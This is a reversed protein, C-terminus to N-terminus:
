HHGFIFFRMRSINLSHPGNVLFVHCSLSLQTYDIIQYLLFFIGTDPNITFGPSAGDRQMIGYKVEGNVGTDADHAQVRLVFTGPPQNELVLANM